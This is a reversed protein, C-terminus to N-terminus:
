CAPWVLWLWFVKFATILTRFTWLGTSKREEERKSLHASADVFCCNIWSDGAPNSSRTLLDCSCSLAWPAFATYKSLFEFSVMDVRSSPSLLLYLPQSFPLCLSLSIEQPGLRLIENSWLGGGERETKNEAEPHLGERHGSRNRLRVSKNKKKNVKASRCEFSEKGVHLHVNYFFNILFFKM